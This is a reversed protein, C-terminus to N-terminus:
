HIRVASVVLRQDHTALSTDWTGACTILSLHALRDTSPSAKKGLPPGTGYMLDLVAKTKAQALTYAHTRTVVFKETFGTRTNRIFILDGAVLRSLQGFVAYRGFADDIHGAITATGVAGPVSGGRYWFTDSWYPSNAGGEPAAMAHNATMGVALLHSSVNISPIEVIIPVAVPPAMLSLSRSTLKAPPALTATVRATATTAAMKPTSAPKSGVLDAATFFAVTMAMVVIVTAGLRRSRTTLRM